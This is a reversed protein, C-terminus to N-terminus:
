SKEATPVDASTSPKSEKSFYSVLSYLLPLEDAEEVPKMRLREKLLERELRFQPHGSEALLVSETFLYGNYILYERILENIFVNENSIPPPPETEDQLVNFVEARIRARIESLVGSKALSEKLVDKLDRATAM